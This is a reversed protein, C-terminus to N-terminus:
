DQMGIATVLVHVQTKAAQDAVVLAKLAQSSHIVVLVVSENLRKEGSKLGFQDLVLREIVEVWALWFIKSYMLRDYVHNFLRCRACAIAPSLM